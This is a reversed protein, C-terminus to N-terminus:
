QIIMKAKAYTSKSQITVLYFGEPFMGEEFNILGEPNSMIFASRVMRGQLDSVMVNYETSPVLGEINVIGGSPTPFVSIEESTSKLNALGINNCTTLSMRPAISMTAKMRSKQGATFLNMCNDETYDMYNMFMIGPATPQCSDFVENIPCNTTAGNQTPTDSVSDDPTCGGADGWIHLLNFFHGVEHTTTRGKHFPAAATGMTGFCRYDVVVGDKTATGSSPSSAYGLLIASPGCSLKCVWINLYCTRDWIDQGLLATFYISDSQNFCSKSTVTRTIGNTTNGNPDKNTLHFQFKTDSAVGSFAAPTSGMDSNTRRYDANLADIQSQIQADSINEVADKYVVHVVVPIHTISTDAIDEPHNRLYAELYNDFSAKRQFYDPDNKAVMAEKEVTGCRQVQSQVALPFLGIFLISSISFLKM